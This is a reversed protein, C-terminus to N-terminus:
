RGQLGNYALKRWLWELPGQKFYRLYASALLLQILSWISALLLYDLFNLTLLLQPAVHRFLMVGVVSQLIYLSLPIKGVAQLATLRQPQNDCYGVVWQLMWLAMPIAALLVIVLAMNQIIYSDATSCQYAIFGLILSWGLLRHVNSLRHSFWGQQLLYIGLLMMGSILWLYTMPFVLLSVGVVLLQQVLQSGYSGTWLQYEHMYAPSGRVMPVAEIPILAMLLMVLLGIAIFLQAKQLLEATSLGRYRWVLLGCVGYSLLIDGPWLLVGHVMGFAMLWYLRSKVRSGANLGAASFNHWQIYLGVGFLLSFLSIFRDRLLMYYLIEGLTDGTAAPESAVYEYSSIGMTFINLYFIGLVALGRVADINPQRSFQQCHPSPPSSHTAVVLQAQHRDQQM